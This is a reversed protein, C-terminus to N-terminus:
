LQLQWELFDKGASIRSPGTPRRWRTLTM